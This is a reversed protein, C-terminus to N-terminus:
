FIRWIDESDVISRLFFAIDNYTCCFRGVSLKVFCQFTQSRWVLNTHQFNLPRLLMVKIDVSAIGFFLFLVDCGVPYGWWHSQSPVTAVQPLVNVSSQHFTHADTDAWTGDVESKLEFLFGLTKRGFARQIIYKNLITPVLEM